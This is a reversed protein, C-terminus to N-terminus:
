LLGRRFVRLTKEMIDKVTNSLTPDPNLFKAVQTNNKARTNLIGLVKDKSYGRFPDGEGLLKFFYDKITHTSNVKSYLAFENKGRNDRNEM